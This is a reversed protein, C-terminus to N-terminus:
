DNKFAYGCFRKQNRKDSLLLFELLKFQACCFVPQRFLPLRSVNLVHLQLTQTKQNQRFNFPLSLAVGNTKSHVAKLKLQM